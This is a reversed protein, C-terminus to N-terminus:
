ATSHRAKTRHIHLSPSAVCVCVNLKTLASTHKLETYICAVAFGCVCVNLAKSSSYLRLLAKSISYLRLLAKSSSYLRLLAKSISYLRLLAKSM